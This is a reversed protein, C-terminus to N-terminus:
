EVVSVSVLSIEKDGTELLALRCSKAMVESASVALEEGTMNRFGKADIFGSDCM